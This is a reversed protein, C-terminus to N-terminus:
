TLLTVHFDHWTRIGMVFDLAAEQVHTEPALGCFYWSTLRDSGIPWLSTGPSLLHPSFRGGEVLASRRNELVVM